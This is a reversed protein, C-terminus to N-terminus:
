LGVSQALSAKDIRMRYFWVDGRRHCDIVFGQQRLEAAASNVAMVQAGNVIDMTSHDRGDSLFKVVRQLRESRSLSAAHM